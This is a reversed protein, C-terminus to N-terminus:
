YIEYHVCKTREQRISEPCLNVLIPCHDSRSSTLHLVQANSFIKRWGEDALARNPRVRVNNRKERRNDCTYPVRSFGLDHLDRTQLVDQFSQMQFENRPKLSFHEFQWLAENFDGVVMWPLNSVQKLSSLLSRMHHRNEM